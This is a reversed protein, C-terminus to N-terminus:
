YFPKCIRPFGSNLGASKFHYVNSTLDTITYSSIYNDPIGKCIFFDIVDPRKNHDIPWHTPGDPPIARCNYEAIAQHLVRGRQTSIRSGWTPHKANLDGGLIFNHGLHPFLELFTEKDPAARPRCYISGLHVTHNNFNMAVVSSQISITIFACVDHHHLSKKILVASGDRAQGSPHNALYVDYNCIKPSNATSVLHTESILVADINNQHLFVELENERIQLGNANWCLLNICNACEM